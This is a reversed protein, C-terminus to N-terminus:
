VMLAYLNIFQFSPGPSNTILVNAEEEKAMPVLLFTMMGTRRQLATALMKSKMIIVLGGALFM